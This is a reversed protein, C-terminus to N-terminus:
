HSVWPGPVPSQRFFKHVSAKQIRILPGMLEALGDGFGSETSQTVPWKAPNAHSALRLMVSNRHTVYM